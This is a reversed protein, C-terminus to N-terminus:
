QWATQRRVGCRFSAGEHSNEGIERSPHQGQWLKVTRFGASAIWDADSRMAVARIMDLDAAGRPGVQAPDLAPDVLAALTQGHMKGPQLGYVFLENGRSCVAVDGAPAVAAALIPRHEDPVPQWHIPTKDAARSDKAGQEIWRQLLGLEAPKLAVAAVDNDAPPMFPENRHAAVQLLRSEEPKGPVVLAGGDRVTRLLAPTELVVDAEATSANHCALCNRQLMPLIDAAFDIQQEAPPMEIAIPKNADAPADAVTSIPYAGLVGALALELGIKLQRNVVSMREGKGTVRLTGVNSVVYSRRDAPKAAAALKTARDTAEKLLRTAM